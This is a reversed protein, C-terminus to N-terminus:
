SLQRFALKAHAAGVQDQHEREVEVLKEAAQRAIDDLKNIKAPWTDFKQQQVEVVEAIDAHQVYM